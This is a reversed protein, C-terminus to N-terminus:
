ILTYDLFKHIENPRTSTHIELVEFESVKLFYVSNEPLVISRIWLAFTTITPYLALGFGIGKDEYSFIGSFPNEDDGSDLEPIRWSLYNFKPHADINGDGWKERFKAIFYEKDYYTPVESFDIPKKRPDYLCIGYGAFSM